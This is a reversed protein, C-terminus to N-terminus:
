HFLRDLLGRQKRSGEEGFHNRIVYESLAHIDKALNSRTTVEDITAGKDRAKSAAEYDNRIRHIRSRGLMEKLKDIELTYMQSKARNNILEVREPSLEMMSLSDLIAKADVITPLTNQIVIFLPDAWKLAAVTWPVFFRPVDLFVLDYAEVAAEMLKTVASESIDNIPAIGKPSCLIKLGSKHEIMLADLFLPDLREHATLADLVNSTPQLDLYTAVAGFQVDLDFLAVKAECQEALYKATNVALTTAGSGGKANIFGVVGCRGGKATELRNRKDTVAQTIATVLEQTQIPLPFADRVGARMLRRMTEVDAETYTVYVVLRDSHKHLIREIDQIDNESHGNIEMLIVDPMEAIGIEGLPRNDGAMRISLAVGKVRALTSEVQERTDKNICIAVVNLSTM